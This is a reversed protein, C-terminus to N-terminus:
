AELQSLERVVAVSGAAGITEDPPQWFDPPDAGVSSRYRAKWDEYDRRAEALRCERVMLELRMRVADIDFPAVELLRDLMLRRFTGEAHQDSALWRLAELASARLRERERWQWGGDEIGELFEGRYLEIAACYSRRAIEGAGRALAQRAHELHEDFLVTDIVTHPPPVFRYGNSEFKVVDGVAKRIASITVRLNDHAADADTEPWYIDILRARAVGLGRLSVLYAFIERAKRRKWADAPLPEGGVLVRLGGLLEVRLTGASRLADPMLGQGIRWRRLPERLEAFVHAKTRLLFRYDRQHLLAIATTAGQAARREAERAAAGSLKPLLRVLTVAVDLSTSATMVADAGAGALELAEYALALGRANEGRALACEARTLLVAAINQRRGTTRLSALSKSCCEDAEDVDGLALSAQALGHLIDPLFLVDGPDGARLAERFALQAGVADGRLLKIEGENERAYAVLNATGIDYADDLLKASLREAHDLDGVLRTVFVLSGLTLLSSVRQGASRKVKLAREHMALGAYPDGRRVHLVATNHLVMGQLALDGRAVVSPMIEEFVALAEDFREAELLVAGYVMKLATRSHESLRPGLALTAEITELLRAFEGRSALVTALVRVAEALVDPEGRERAGAVARELSSSARDWEGRLAELRGLATLLTPSREIRERGIRQLFSDVRALLGSALMALAVTALAAAAADLDGADLLHAIAGPQDGRLALVSAARGHLSAIEGATRSRGLTHQLFERFLQHASYADESRRAIFLGRRAFSALVDGAYRSETVADCVSEELVDLISTELLFRRETEGLGDLVEAALYDFLLRRAAEDRASAPERGDGAARVAATSVVLALGAPWGEARRALRELANADDGFRTAVRLYAHSESEDFALDAAGATVLRTSAALAHLPIPMSRGCVVFTAGARTAREVLESLAAQARSGELVHVDDFVLLPAPRVDALLEAFVSGVEKPSGLRWSEGEFPRECALSKLMTEVHAAFVALDADSADLSYWLKPGPWADHLRAALVTKGYGPGAVISLVSTGATFRREINPRAIWAPLLQPPRLKLRQVFM